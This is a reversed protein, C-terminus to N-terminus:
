IVSGDAATRPPREIKTLNANSPEVRTNKKRSFM